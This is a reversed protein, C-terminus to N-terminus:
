RDSRQQMQQISERVVRADRKALGNIVIPQSGGATEIQITSFFIGNRVRISAIHRYNIVEENSGFLGRKEYHVGDSDVHISDPFFFNGSTLRSSRFLQAM